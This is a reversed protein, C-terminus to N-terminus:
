GVKRIKKQLKDPFGQGRRAIVYSAAQHRNLKMREGFKEMGIQSTYAPNVLVIEVKERFGANELCTKYRSYDLAHVMKNYQKGYKGRTKTTLAKTKKFDLQEVAIPKRKEKALRVIKAIMEQMESEAKKGMGHFKLPFHRLGILNGIQKEIMTMKTLLNARELAKLEKLAKLRGKATQILTNATRKDIQYTMQLHTNLQSQTWKKEQILKWVVRFLRNQKEMDQELYEMPFQSTGLRTEITFCKKLM